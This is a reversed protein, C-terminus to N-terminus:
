AGRRAFALSIGLTCMAAGSTERLFLLFTTADFVPMEQRASRLILAHASPTCSRPARDYPPRGM